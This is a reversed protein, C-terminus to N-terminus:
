SSEQELLDYYREVDGPRDVDWILPLLAYDTGVDNLCRCTESLVSATSWAIDQFVSPVADRVGILGYGGDEAPGLVVDHDNLREFAEGVYAADILPSDSGVLVVKASENLGDVLAFRMREGLDGTVQQRQDVDPFQDLFGITDELTYWIETRFHKSLRSITRKALGAAVDAAGVDGICEALRTKVKGPEPLKCFIQVLQDRM